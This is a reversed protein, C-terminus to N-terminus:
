NLIGEEQLISVIQEATLGDERILQAAAPLQDATFGYDLLKELEYSNRIMRTRETKSQKNFSYPTERQTTTSNLGRVGKNQTTTLTDKRGEPPILGFRVGLDYYHNAEAESLVVEDGSDSDIFSYRDDKRSGSGGYYNRTSLAALQNQGRREEAALRGAQRKGELAMDYGHKIAMKQREIEAKLNQLEVKQRRTLQNAMALKELEFLRKEDDALKRDANELEKFLAQEQAQQGALDTKFRLNRYEKGERLYDEEMKNLEGLAKFPYSNGTVPVYGKTTTGIIGAGLASLLNGWAEIKAMTRIRKEREEDRKPENAEFLAKRLDTGKDQSERIKALVAERRNNQERRRSLANNYISEFTLPTATQEGPEGAQQPPIGIGTGNQTPTNAPNGEVTEGKEPLIIRGTEQQTDKRKAM